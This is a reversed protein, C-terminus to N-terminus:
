EVRYVEVVRAKEPERLEYPEDGPFYPPAKMEALATDFTTEVAWGNQDPFPSLTPLRHYHLLSGCHRVTGRCNTYNANLDANGEAGFGGLPAMAVAHLKLEGDTPTANIGILVDGVWAVLAIVTNDNPIGGGYTLSGNIIINSRAALTVKSGKSVEGGTITLNGHVYLLFYPDVIRWVEQEITDTDIVNGSADFTTIIYQTTTFDPGLNNIQLTASGHVYATMDMDHEQGDVCLIQSHNKDRYINGSVPAPTLVTNTLYGYFGCGRHLKWTMNTPFTKEDIREVVNRSGDSKPVDALNVLTGDENRYVVPPDGATNSVMMTGDYTADGRSYFPYTSYIDGTYKVSDWVPTGGITGDITNYITFLNYKSIVRALHVNITRDRDSVSSTYSRVAVTKGREGSSNIPTSEVEFGYRMTVNNLGGTGRPNLGLPANADFLRVVIEQRNEGMAVATSMVAYYLDDIASDEVITFDLEPPISDDPELPNHNLWDRFFRMRWISTARTYNKVDDASIIKRTGDELLLGESIRKDIQSLKKELLALGRQIGADAIFASQSTKVTRVLARSNEMARFSLYLLTGLVFFAIFFVTILAVGPSKKKLLSAPWAPTLRSTIQEM